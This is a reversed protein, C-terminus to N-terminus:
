AAIHQEHESRVPESIRELTEALLDAEGVDVALDGLSVIGVLGGDQIVPLRRVQADAMMDAADEVNIDPGITLPSPTMFDGVMADNLDVGKAVARVTIDRDTIVGVLNNEDDVIPLIGINVEKMMEAADSLMDDVKATLVNKTMADQVKM